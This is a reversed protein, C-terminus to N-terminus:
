QSTDKGGIRQFITLFLLLHATQASKEFLTEGINADSASCGIFLWVNPFENPCSGFEQSIALILSLVFAKRQVIIYVNLLKVSASTAQSM